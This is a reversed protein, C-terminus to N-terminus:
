MQVSLLISIHTAGSVRLLQIRLAVDPCFTINIYSYSRLCSPTTYAFGCRSLFYYQYILLEQSVFFNYIFLWMQISTLISIHTAGSVHHLQTRLAVDPCFTINLYSCSRLSSSTTYAFGCRSLFYYQYILLEQSTIFNHVCLWMQVSLLISIHTAGSVRHLQIRLAVDPCFTINIYSYSWLCTSTTYAFGCRSLFYYQYILLEQSVISNHVCLWMQVSLLISIHTAGSVRLLQIRLAVIPYFNINIYSYSRLCTSTTYAFGCRSLFYYQYILLEQSTIFNYVCLWMQVSLLISIHTAGSVRLLQIRLAVDPCFNINIYSYSRLRSSTTYAFGCRSLFYYKFILLEQSEIFNYVCLWMQVSLLISIHTAGSVHHLQTRLAVDPCFTINIYSYSRLCSSTTYAFGCRSLFYYQYILLELSVYFNYVCLWM